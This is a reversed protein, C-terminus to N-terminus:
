EPTPEEACKTFHCSPSARTSSRCKIRHQACSRTAAWLKRGYMSRKILKLRHVNGEVPGNSWAYELAARVAAEDRSLHKAFSALPSQSASDRWKPFASLDRMRVIRFFERAVDASLAIDPSLDFLEEFLEKLYREGSENPKLIHWVVQRPSVRPPKPPSPERRSRVKRGYRQHIWHRVSSSTGQFGRACM